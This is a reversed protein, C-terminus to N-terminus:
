KGDLAALIEKATTNPKLEMDWNFGEEYFLLPQEPPVLSRFWLAFAALDELTYASFVVGPLRRYCEGYLLGGPMEIQWEPSLNPDKTERIKASPWRRVLYSVFESAPMNWSTKVPPSIFYDM